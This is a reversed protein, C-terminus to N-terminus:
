FPYVERLSEKLGPVTDYGNMETPKIWRSECHEWDTQITATTKVRFLYPYVVWRINNENDAFELSQGRKVLQIDHPSLGTEEQIETLSQADPNSEVFGSVSAWRGQFSGVKQSRKLLLIRGRRALFCTVVHKVPLDSM